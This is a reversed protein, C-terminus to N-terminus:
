AYIDINQGTVRQSIRYGNSTYAFRQQDNRPLRYIRHPRKQQQNRATQREPNFGPFPIRAPSPVPLYLAEGVATM